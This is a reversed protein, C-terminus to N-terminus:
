IYPSEVLHCQRDDFGYRKSLIILVITIQSHMLLIYKHPAFGMLADLYQQFIIVACSEKRFDM